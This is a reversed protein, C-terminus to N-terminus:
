VRRSYVCQMEDFLQKRKENLDTLGTWPIRYDLTANISPLLKWGPNVAFQVDFSAHCSVTSRGVTRGLIEKKKKLKGCHRWRILHFGPSITVMVSEIHKSLTTHVNKKGIQFPKPYVCFYHWYYFCWHNFYKTMLPTALKKVLQLGPQSENGWIRFIACMVLVRPGWWRM